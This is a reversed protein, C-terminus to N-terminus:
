KSQRKSRRAIRNRVWVVGHTVKTDIKEALKSIPDGGDRGPVGMAIGLQFTDAPVSPISHTEVEQSPLNPEEHAQNPRKPIETM